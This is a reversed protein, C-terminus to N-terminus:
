GVGVIVGGMEDGADVRLVDAKTGKVPVREETDRVPRPMAARRLM